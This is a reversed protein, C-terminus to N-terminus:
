TGIVLQCSESMKISFCGILRNLRSRRLDGSLHFHVRRGAVSSPHHRKTESNRMRMQCALVNIQNSVLHTFSNLASRDIETIELTKREFIHIRNLSRTLRHVMKVVYVVMEIKSSQFTSPTQRSTPHSANKRFHSSIFVFHDVLPGSRRISWYREALFAECSRPAMVDLGKSSEKLGVM